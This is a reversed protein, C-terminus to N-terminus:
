LISRMREKCVDLYSITFCFVFRFLRICRQKTVFAEHQLFCSEAPHEEMAYGIRSAQSGDHCAGTEAHSPM